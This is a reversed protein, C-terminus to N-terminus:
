SVGAAKKKNLEIAKARLADAEKILAAQKNRNLRPDKSTFLAEPDASAVVPDNFPQAHGPAGALLLAAAITSTAFKM